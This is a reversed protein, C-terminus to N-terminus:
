TACPGPEGGPTPAARMQRHVSTSRVPLPACTARVMKRPWADMVTHDWHAEGSRREEPLRPRPRAAPRSLAHGDGPPGGPGPRPPARGDDLAPGDHGVGVILGKPEAGHEGCEGSSASLSGDEAEGVALRRGQMTHAAVEAGKALPFQLFGGIDELHGGHPEKVVGVPLELADGEIREDSLNQGHRIRHRSVQQQDKVFAADTPVRVMPAGGLGRVAGVVQPVKGDGGPGDRVPHSPGEIRLEPRRKLSTWSPRQVDTERHVALTLSTGDSTM